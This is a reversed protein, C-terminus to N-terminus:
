RSRSKLDSVKRTRRKGGLRRTTVFNMDGRALFTDIAETYEINSTNAKLSTPTFSPLSNATFPYLIPEEKLGMEARGFDIVYIYNGQRNVYLNELHADNHMVKMQNFLKSLKKALLKIYNRKLQKLATSFHQQIAEGSDRATRHKRTQRNRIDPVHRSMLTIPIPSPSLYERVSVYTGPIKDMTVFCSYETTDALVGFSNIKPIHIETYTHTKHFDALTHHAYIQMAVEMVFACVAYLKPIESNNQIISRKTITYRNIKIQTQRNFEVGAFSEKAMKGSPTYKDLDSMTDVFRLGDIIDYINEPLVRKHTNKIKYFVEHISKRTISKESTKSSPSGVPSLAFLPSFTTM